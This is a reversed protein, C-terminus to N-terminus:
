CRDVSPSPDYWDSVKDYKSFNGNPEQDISKRWANRHWDCENNVYEYEDILCENVCRDVMDKCGKECEENCFAGDEVCSDCLPRPLDDQVNEFWDLYDDVLHDLPECRREFHLFNTEWAGKDEPWRSLYEEFILDEIAKLLENPLRTIHADPGKGFRQCLRLANFTPLTKEYAELHLGLLDPRVPAGWVLGAEVVSM